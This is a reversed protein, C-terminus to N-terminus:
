AHAREETAQHQYDFTGPLYLGAETQHAETRDSQITRYGPMALEKRHVRNRLGPIILVHRDPGTM